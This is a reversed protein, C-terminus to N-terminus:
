LKEKCSIELKKLDALQDQFTESTQSDIGAKFYFALEPIPGSRGVRDMAAMWRALDLILPVALISDRGQLNLRLSMTLGFLGEFDIVDWAEKADGRPPYYDILVKHSSEGFQKRGPTYGLVNELVDTKNTLKCAANEPDMLNAGDANGLINLSYWGNVQLRRARFASALVVKLYTQGTKGDRGAIPIGRKKAAHIVAPVEVKNPTFNVVAINSEIAAIVYALDPMEINDNRATLEDLTTFRNLDHCKGAPLLNIFVLLHEPHKARFEQIHNKLMQIQESLPIQRDPANKVPIDDLAKTYPGWVTEHLVHHHAIAEKISFSSRDWGALQIRSPDGLFALKQSTMLSPLIFDPNRQLAQVAVALTSGIAGKIGAVLLLLGKQADAPSEMFISDM